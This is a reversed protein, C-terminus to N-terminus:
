AAGTPPATSHRLILKGQLTIVDSSLTTADDGYKDLVRLMMLAAQRGLEHKPQDFTTLPPSVYAALDINDFGTISIDDPVRFGAENLTRIAGIAMVDNYCIIGTPPSRQELFELTGAKGGGALGNPGEIVYEPPVPLLHRRMENMYGQKRDETTRGARANGLYAIKTHGLEILYRTLQRSGEADNHYVSHTIDDAAQNNILVTPVGFQELQQRHEEGVQTSCIIVGDVRRESMLRVITEERDLDRQSAALFLSYGKESLVEEIGDLVEGFFPDVIRRVIVGLIGSRRTKLGSAAKNPVYGLEDAVQRVRSATEQSISPNGRLARSVTTHSVGAVKAIDKITVPV